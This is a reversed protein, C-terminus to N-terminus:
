LFLAYIVDDQGAVEKFNWCRQYFGVGAADYVDVRGEKGFKSAFSHVAAVHVLGYYVGGFCFGADGDVKYVGVVVGAGGEELGGARNQRIISGVAKGLADVGQFLLMKGADNFFVDASLASSGMWAVYQFGLIELFAMRLFARKQGSGFRYIGKKGVANGSDKKTDFRVVM